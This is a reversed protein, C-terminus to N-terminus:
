TNLANFFLIFKYSINFRKNSKIDEKIPKTKSKGNINIIEIKSNLASDYILVDVNFNILIDYFRKENYIIIKKNKLNLNCKPKDIIKLKLDRIYYYIFLLIQICFIIKFSKM